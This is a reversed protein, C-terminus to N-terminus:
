QVYTQTVGPRQRIATCLCVDNSGAPTATRHSAKSHGGESSESSINVISYSAKWARSSTQSGDGGLVDNHRHLGGTAFTTKRADPWDHRTALRARQRITLPSIGDRTSLYPTQSM